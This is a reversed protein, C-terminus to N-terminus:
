YNFSSLLAIYRNQDQLDCLIVFYFLGPNGAFKFQWNEHICSKHFLSELNDVSTQTISLLRGPSKVIRDRKIVRTKEEFRRRFNVKLCCFRSRNRQSISSFQKSKICTFYRSALNLM